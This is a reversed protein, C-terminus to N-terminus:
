HPFRKLRALAAEAARALSDPQPRKAVEGLAAKAADDGIWELVQLARSNRVAPLNPTKGEGLLTEVAERAEDSPKGALIRRLPEELALVDYEALAKAAARRANFKDSDLGAALEKIRQPDAVPIRKLRERLIPVTAAPDGVLQRMLRFAKAADGGGLGDWVEDASGLPGDPKPVRFPLKSVDWLLIDGDDGGSALTKGDPSWALCNINKTHKQFRAVEEGTLINQVRITRDDKYPWFTGGDADAHGATALFRGDPSIATCVMMSKGCDWERVILGSFVEVVLLSQYRRYKKELPVSLTVILYRGDPTLTASEIHNALETGNEEVDRITFAPKDAFRLDWRHIKGNHYAAIVFRQDPTFCIARLQARTLQDGVLRLDSKLKRDTLSWLTKDGGVYWKGDPSIAAATMWHVVPVQEPQFVQAPKGNMFVKEGTLHAITKTRPHEIRYLWKGDSLSWVDHSDAVTTDGPSIALLNPTVKGPVKESYSPDNMVLRLRAEAATPGADAFRFEKSLTELNWKYLEGARAESVLVKSNTTFVLAVVPDPHAIRKPSSADDAAVTAKKGHLFGFVVASAILLIVKRM